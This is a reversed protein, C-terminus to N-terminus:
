EVAEAADAGSWHRHLTWKARPYSGAPEIGVACELLRGTESKEMWYVTRDEITMGEPLNEALLDMYEDDTEASACDALVADLATLSNEARENLGAIEEAIEVSRRALSMDNRASMLSLMGLVSMSLVVAIMMLSAAGPGLQLERRRM